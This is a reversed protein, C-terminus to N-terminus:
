DFRDFRPGLIIGLKYYLLMFFPFYSVFPENVTLDVNVHLDADHFKLVKQSVGQLLPRINRFRPDLRRKALRTNEAELAAKILQM